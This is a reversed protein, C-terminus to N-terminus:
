TRRTNQLTCESSRFEVSPSQTLRARPTHAAAVLPMTMLSRANHPPALRNRAIRSTFNSDGTTIHVYEVQHLAGGAELACKCEITTARSGPKSVSTLRQPCSLEIVEAGTGSEIYPAYAERAHWRRMCDSCVQSRDSNVLLDTEFVERQCMRTRPGSPRSCRSVFAGCTACTSYGARTAGSVMQWWRCLDPPQPEAPLQM